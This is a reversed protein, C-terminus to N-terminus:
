ESDVEFLEEKDSSHKSILIQGIDIDPNQPEYDADNREEFSNMTQFPFWSGEGKSKIVQTAWHTRITFSGTSEVYWEPPKVGKQSKELTEM